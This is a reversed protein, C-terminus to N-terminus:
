SMRRCVFISSTGFIKRLWRSEGLFAPLIGFIKPMRRGEVKEISLGAEVILRKWHRVSLFREDGHEQTKDFRRSNPVDFVIKKAIRGQEHLLAVIESDSFHELVGQHFVCDVSRPPLGTDFMNIKKVPLTNQVLDSVGKLVESDIDSAVVNPRNSFRVVLSTYGSGAGLELLSSDENTAKIIEKLFWYQIRVTNIASWNKFFSKWEKKIQTM